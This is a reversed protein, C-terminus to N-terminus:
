HPPFGPLKLVFLVFISGVWVAAPLVVAGFLWRIGRPTAKWALWSLGVALALVVVFAFPHAQAAILPARGLVFYDFDDM